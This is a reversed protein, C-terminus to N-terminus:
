CEQEDDFAVTIVGFFSSIIGVPFLLWWFNVIAQEVANLQIPITQPVNYDTGLNTGFINTLKIEAFDRLSKLAIEEAQLKKLPSAASKEVQEALALQHNVGLMGSFWNNFDEGAEEALPHVKVYKDLETTADNLQQFAIDVRNSTTATVFRKRIESLVVVQNPDFFSTPSIIAFTLGLSLSTAGILLSVGGFVSRISFGLLSMQKNEPATNM